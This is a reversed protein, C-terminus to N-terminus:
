PLFFLASMLAFLPLLIVCSWGMYGLFSPMKVGREEAIAKVMFNPANGIYTLAGMFVAGASLATLTTAGERMLTAADGGAAKFFVLYTPANDLFASLLGTAWFYLLDVPEGRADHVLRVVWGFAGAEAAGLIALVPAITIFIAAFLKAVEVIPAWDFENGARAGPPTIRLSVALILFLVVERMLDQLQVSTGFVSFEIGPRWVGSVLVSVIVALLLIFNAKGEIWLRPADRRGIEANFVIDSRMRRRDIAYFLGLLLGCTLVTPLALHRTTWFFGVGQLFGLFLPPDGLPTLAGGANAVIFIFFIVVHVSSRRGENAHLLPRILLMAAGTTGMVSALLAGVGLVMVNVGPSARLRGHLCIGGAVTYLTALLAIFPLYEALFAHVFVQVAAHIGHWFAFPLLFLASWAAAVKGFHAHWFSPALLPLFAISLLMGAFPLGWFSALTAGNVDAAFASMPVVAGLLILWKKTKM